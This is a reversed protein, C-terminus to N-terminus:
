LGVCQKASPVMSAIARPRCVRTNSLPWRALHARGFRGFLLPRALGLRRRIKDAHAGPHFDRRIIDRIGRLLDNRKRM